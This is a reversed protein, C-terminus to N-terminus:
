EEGGKDWEIPNYGECQDRSANHEYGDEYYIGKMLGALINQMETGSEHAEHGSELCFDILASDEANSTNMPTLKLVAYPHKHSSDETGFPFEHTLRFVVGDILYAIGFDQSVIKVVPVNWMQFVEGYENSDIVVESM